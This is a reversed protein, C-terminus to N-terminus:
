MCLANASLSVGDVLLGHKDDYLGPTIQEYIGPLCELEKLDGADLLANKIREHVSVTHRQLKRMLRRNPGYIKLQHILKAGDGYSVLVASGEDKILRFRQAATRFQIKLENADRELLAKINHEDLSNARAYFHEFYTKFHDHHLPAQTFGAALSRTVTAARGLHGQLHQNGPPVFVVLKGKASLRGERNCRGAAQALSDLGSLARYVIPFDVDVGAEILQTSVVRVPDGDRLRQKIEEIKTSRHEGCLNTSLYLTEPPLLRCLEAAQRKTNVIVLATTHQSIDTALIEWDQETSLDAPLAVEVRELANFLAPTNPIIERIQNAKFGDIITEDFDDHYTHLAPQTATSLVLTVGYQEVLTRLVSLIPNLFEPPLLQAEDLVIVSNVLNHLKRCRSTRSAFLSEFLQVNTTVVIPADWNETALRSKADEKDPDLNSHHEIVCDGFISRYVTATQEIISTYPIAYIIRQKKHHLAHELAFAMGSLTKGGGTPVTLSFAGPEEQAANRCDSLVTTRIRNVPSDHASQVFQNMHKNFMGLLEPMAPYKGRGATKDPQMFYETDLFDADVLASFLMRIWLAAESPSELPLSTPLPANLIEQPIKGELAKELNESHQLIEELSSGSADQRSWDPLGAHHGAILYALIRGFVQHKSVAHLAGAASHNVKGGSESEIHANEREYGTKDRIYAQFEPNYKGLDHWIGAICGWDKSNFDASFTSALQAVDRLHNELGHEIPESEQPFRVHAIYNAM